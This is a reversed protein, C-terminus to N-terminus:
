GFAVWGHTNCLGYADIALFAVIVLIVVRRRWGYVLRTGGVPTAMYWDGLVRAPQSGTLEWFDVADDGVSADPDAALAADTLEQDTLEQGTLEQGSIVM